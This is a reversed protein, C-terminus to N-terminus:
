LLSREITVIIFTSLRREYCRAKLSYLLFTRSANIGERPREVGASPRMTHWLSIHSIVLLSTAIAMHEKLDYNSNIIKLKSILPKPQSGNVREPDERVNASFSEFASGNEVLM